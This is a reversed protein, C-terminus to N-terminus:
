QDFPNAVWNNVDPIDNNASTPQNNEDTATFVQFLNAANVIKPIAGGMAALQAAMTAQTALGAELQEKPTIGENTLLLTQAPKKEVDSFFTQQRNALDVIRQGGNAMVEGMLDTSTQSKGLGRRTANNNQDLIKQRERATRAIADEKQRNLKGFSATYLDLKITTSIEQGIDVTISTVLPGRDKLEKGLSVGTPAGVYSIGGRESILLLSNSFEAKLNGAAQLLEYGGYSWPALTEDKLVEVKGGINYYRDKRNAIDETRLSTSFWPGYCREWSM